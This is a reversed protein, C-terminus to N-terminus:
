KKSNNKNIEFITKLIEYDSKDKINPIIVLEKKNVVKIIDFNDIDKIKKISFISIYYGRKLLDRQLVFYKYDIFFFFIIIFILYGLINKVFPFSNLDIINNVQLVFLLIWIINVIFTAIIFRM